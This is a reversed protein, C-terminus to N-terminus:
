MGSTMSLSLVGALCFFAISHMCLLSDMRRSSASPMLVKEKLYPTVTTPLVAVAAVSTRHSTSSPAKLSNQLSAILTITASHRSKPRNSAVSSGGLITLSFPLYLAYFM